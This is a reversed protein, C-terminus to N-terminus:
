PLRGTCQSASCSQSPSSTHNACRTCRSSSSTRTRALVPVPMACQGCDLQRRPEPMAGASASARSPPATESPTSPAAEFSAASMSQSICLAQCVWRATFPAAATVASSTTCQAVAPPARTSPMGWTPVKAGPCCASIAIKLRSSARCKPMCSGNIAGTVQPPDAFSRYRRMPPRMTTSSPAIGPSSRCFSFDSAARTTVRRAAQVFASPVGHEIGLLGHQATEPIRQHRDLMELVPGLRERQQALRDHQKEIGLAFRGRELIAATVAGRFERLAPAVIAVDDAAIVAPFIVAIALQHHDRLKRELLRDGVRLRAREAGLGAIAIDPDCEILGQAVNGVNGFVARRAIAADVLKVFFPVRGREAQHLIREVIRVEGEDVLAREAIDILGLGLFVLDGLGIVAKIGLRDDRDAIGGAGEPDGARRLRRGLTVLAVFPEDREAPAEVHFIGRANAM